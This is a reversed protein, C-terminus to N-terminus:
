CGCIWDRKSHMEKNKSTSNPTGMTAWHYCVQSTDMLVHNLDRAISLPKLIQRQQSRHHLSAAADRILSPAQFSGYVAPVARFSLFLNLLIFCFLITSKVWEMYIIKACCLSVVKEMWKLIVVLNRRTVMQWWVFIDCNNVIDRVSYMEYRHSM